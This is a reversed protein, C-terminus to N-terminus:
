GRPESLMRKLLAIQGAHYGHHVALGELTELRTKGTGLSPDRVGPPELWRSEPVSAVAASLDDQAADLAARAARWGEDTTEGVHPWDGEAPDGPVGGRLRAAVEHTWATMHLVIEWISHAGGGPSSSAQKATIGELIRRTSYGHWPDGGHVELALALARLHQSM